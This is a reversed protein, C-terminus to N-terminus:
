LDDEDLLPKCFGKEQLMNQLYIKCTMSPVFTCIWVQIFKALNESYIYVLSGLGNVLM